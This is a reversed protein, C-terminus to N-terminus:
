WIDPQKFYLLCAWVLCFVRKCYGCLCWTSFYMIGALASWKLCKLSVYCQLSFACLQVKFEFSLSVLVYVPLSRTVSCSLFVTSPFYVSRCAVQSLWPGEETPASSNQQHEFRWHVTQFLSFTLSSPVSRPHTTGWVWGTWLWDKRQNVPLSSSHLQVDKPHPLVNEKKRITSARRCYSCM